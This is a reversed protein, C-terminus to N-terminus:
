SDWFRWPRPDNLASQPVLAEKIAATLEPIGLATKASCPLPASTNPTSLDSRLTTHLIPTNPNRHTQLRPDLCAQTHDHSQTHDLAHLVLDASQLIPALLELEANTQPTHDIREDIGPTDVWRVALGALNLTVGLHDRTTGAHDSVMAVSEKALANILSSKGINARGIAVVIPPALLRNLIASDALDTTSPSDTTPYKRWRNPQDLLLNVALPSPASALAALTQAEYLDTSEPYISQPDQSTDLPINIKTLAASIARTIAIGGHPMILLTTTDFRALLADDLNLIKSLRIQTPNIPTINLAAFVANMAHTDHAHVRIVSVAGVSNTPTEISHTPPRTPQTIPM